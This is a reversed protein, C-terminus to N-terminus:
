HYRNKHERYWVILKGLNEEFNINSVKWGLKELKDSCTYYRVDNFKRDEVYTIIDDPNATSDFLRILTHALEFMSYEHKDAASINYIEGIKGHFLITEYANSVDDVHVFNRRSTGSGHLTIKQGDLLQCIFKPIVKEPYQNIGYVNNARTIIIPMKYSYYYSKAMFEAGAKSAAYPNTPDLISQETRIEGDLVEGYVEDTSVHIFKQLNGTKEHYLRTAELLYHTGLVNNETFTISNCFSNDVHSQAAFHIITDINKSFLINNVCEKDLINGVTITVNHDLLESDINEYASCYDYKDLVSIDIDPYKKAFYNVFNSGIFGLAGTVLLSTM